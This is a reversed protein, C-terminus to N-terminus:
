ALDLLSVCSVISYSKYFLILWNKYITSQLNKLIKHLKMVKHLICFHIKVQLIKKKKQSVHPEELDLVYKAETIFNNSVIVLQYLCKLILM